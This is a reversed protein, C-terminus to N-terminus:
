SVHHAGNRQRCSGHFLLCGRLTEAVSVISLALGSAALEGMKHVASQVNHLYDIVWDTDLLYKM